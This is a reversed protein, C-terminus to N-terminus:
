ATGISVHTVENMPKQLFFEGVSKFKETSDTAFFTIHGPQNSPSSIKEERLLKEVFRATAEGSDILAVTPGMIKQITNKLLPYHTCGLILTDLSTEQKLKKLYVSAISEPIEGEVWGEEALPVFLPCTTSSIRTQPYLHRLTRSYADSRITGETGIIGIHKSRSTQLAAEAGPEIVGIIPFKYTEQLFPLAFASATNCAVVIMKIKKEILFNVNHVSYRTVTDASKTGYPVRATDGLYILNEHPLKKQIERLVTLGGIGSDFIGIAEECVQTM